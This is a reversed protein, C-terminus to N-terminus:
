HISLREALFGLNSKVYARGAETNCSAQALEDDSYVGAFQQNRERVKQAFLSQLNGDMVAWEREEIDLEMVKLFRGIMHETEDSITAEAFALICEDLDSLESKKEFAHRIGFYLGLGGGETLEVTVDGHKQERHATRMEIMKRGEEIHCMDEISITKGPNVHQYARALLIYHEFEDVAFQLFGKIEELERVPHGPRVAALREASRRVLNLVTVDGPGYVGSGAWEKFMQLEMWEADREPTRAGNSFYRDAIDHEAAWYPANHAIIQSLFSAAGPKSM